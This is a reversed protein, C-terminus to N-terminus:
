KRQYISLQDAHREKNPDQDTRISALWDLYDQPLGAERAGYLVHELYWGFPHLGKEVHTAFYCEATARGGTALQLEISKRIYGQGCGEAKDLLPLEAEDLSYLVGHVCDQEGDTAIADCKASGDISKKHFVLSHGELTARGIKAVSPVRAAIRKVSMNSGYAFYNVHIM